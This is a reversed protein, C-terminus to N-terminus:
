ILLSPCQCSSHCRGLPPCACRRPTLPRSFCRRTCTDLPSLFESPQRTAPEDTRRDAVEIHTRLGRIVTRLSDHQHTCTVPKEGITESDSRGDIPLYETSRLCSSSVAASGKAREPWCVEQMASRNVKGSNPRDLFFAGSAGARVTGRFVPRERGGGLAMEGVHEDRACLSAGDRRGSATSRERSLAARFVYLTHSPLLM